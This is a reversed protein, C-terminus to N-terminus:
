RGYYLQYEFVAGFTFEQKGYTPADGQVQRLARTFAHGGRKSLSLM